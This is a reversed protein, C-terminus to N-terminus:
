AFNNGGSGHVVVVIESLRLFHGGFWEIFTILDLSAFKDHGQGCLTDYGQTELLFSSEGRDMYPLTLAEVSWRGASCGVDVAAGGYEWVMIPLRGSLAESGDSDLLIREM